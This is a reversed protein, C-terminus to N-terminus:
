QLIIARPSCQHVLQTGIPQQVSGCGTQQKRDTAAQDLLRPGFCGALHRQNVQGNDGMGVGHANLRHDAICGQNNFRIQESLLRHSCLPLARVATAVFRDLTKGDLIVEAEKSVPQHREDLFKVAQCALVDLRNVPKPLLWRDADFPGLRDIQYQNSTSQLKREGYLYYAGAGARRPGSPRAGTMASSASGSACMWPRSTQDSPTM